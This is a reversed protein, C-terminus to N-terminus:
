YLRADFRELAFALNNLMRSERVHPLRELLAKTATKDAATASLSLSALSAAIFHLLRKM